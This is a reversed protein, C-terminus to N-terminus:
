RQGRQPHPPPTPPPPSLPGLPYRVGAQQLLNFVSNAHPLHKTTTLTTSAAAVATHDPNFSAGAESLAAGDGNSVVAVDYRSDHRGHADVLLPPGLASGGIGIHLLHRIEGFAGAEIADVLMRM